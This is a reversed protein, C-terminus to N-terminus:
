AFLTMSCSRMFVFGHEDWWKFFDPRAQSPSPFCGTQLALSLLPRNLAARLELM